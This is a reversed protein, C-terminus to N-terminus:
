YLTIFEELSKEKVINLREKLRQKMRFVSNMECDFVFMIEKNSFGIKILAVLLLSNKTLQFDNKIRSIFNGFLLDLYDYIHSQEEFSMREVILAGKKLQDLLFVAEVCTNERLKKNESILLVIKRNLKAIDQSNIENEKNKRKLDALQCIYKQMTQENERITNLNTQFRKEYKKRLVYFCASVFILILLAILAIVYKQKEKELRLQSNELTLKENKLTRQLFLIQSQLKENQVLYLLSDSKEKYSFASLYNNKRKELESLSNYTGAQVYKLNCKLSQIYCEEAKSYEGLEIYIQGLSINYHAINVSNKEYKIATKFADIAQSYHKEKREIIGLVQLLSPFVRKTKDSLSGLGRNIYLRASDNDQKVLYTNAINRYGYVIGLTDNAINYLHVSEKYNKLADDYINQIYNLNGMCEQLCGQVKYEKTQELAIEADLYARMAVTISDQFAMVKGYYFLAKGKKVKDESDQYYDVAIKILSDSQLSDLYNKDRAQTLLLAYDARQKGHLKEPHPLQNLLLLASDPCIDIYREVKELIDPAERQSCSMVLSGIILLSIFLLKKMKENTM